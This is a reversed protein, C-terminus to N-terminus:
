TTLGAHQSAPLDSNEKWDRLAQELAIRVLESKTVKKDKHRRRLWVKEIEDVIDEPLYFTAKKAKKPESARQYAQKNTGKKKKSIDDREEFFIDVGRGKVRPRDSM